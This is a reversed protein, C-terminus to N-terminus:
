NIKSKFTSACIFADQITSQIDMYLDKTMFATKNRRYVYFLYHALTALDVLQKELSVKTFAFFSLFKNFIKGLLEFELLMDKGFSDAPEVTPTTSFLMLLSVAAPVNQYDKPDLLSEL